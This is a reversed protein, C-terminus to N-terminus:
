FLWLIYKIFYFWNQCELDKPHVQIIEFKELHFSIKPFFVFFIFKVLAKTYDLAIFWIYM